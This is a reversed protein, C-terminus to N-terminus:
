VLSDDVMQQFHEILTIDAPRYTIGLQEKSRTNDFNVEYGYSKSVFERTTPITPAILWCLWKPLEGKPFSYKDGFHKALLAAIERYWLTENNLIHRGNADPLFGAKIHAEAVDRVDVIGFNFPVAAVASRKDTLQIRLEKTRMGRRKSLSPGFV